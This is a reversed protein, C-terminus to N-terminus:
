KRSVEMTTTTLVDVLGLIVTIVVPRPELGRAAAPRPLAAPRASLQLVAAAGAAVAPVLYRELGEGAKGPIASHQVANYHMASSLPCPEWRGREREGTIVLAAAPIVPSSSLAATLLDLRRGPM